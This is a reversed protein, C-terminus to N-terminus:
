NYLKFITNEVYCMNLSPGVSYILLYNCSNTSLGYIEDVRSDAFMMFKTHKFLKSANNIGTIFLRKCETVLCLSHLIKHLGKSIMAQAIFVIFPVRTSMFSDDLVRIEVNV